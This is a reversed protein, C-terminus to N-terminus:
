TYFTHWLEDVQMVFYIEDCILINLYPFFVFFM